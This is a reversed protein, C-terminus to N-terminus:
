FLLKCKSIGRSEAQNDHEKFDIRKFNIYFHKMDQM